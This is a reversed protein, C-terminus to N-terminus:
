LDVKTLISWFRLRLFYNVKAVHDHLWGASKEGIVGGYYRNYYSTMHHLVDHMRQTSIQPFLRKVLYMHRLEPIDITQLCPLRDAGSYSERAKGAMSADAQQGYFNENKTIDMFKRGRRRLRLKDGETMWQPKQEGFVHLLRPEALETASGPQLAVLADVPDSYKKLASTIASKDAISEAENSADLVVQTNLSPTSVVVRLAILSLLLRLGFTFWAM